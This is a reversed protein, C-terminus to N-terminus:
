SVCFSILLSITPKTKSLPLSIGLHILLSAVCCKSYKAFWCFCFLVSEWLLLPTMCCLESCGLCALDQKWSVSQMAIQNLMMVSVTYLYVGSLLRSSIAHHFVAAAATRDCRWIIFLKAASLWRSYGHCHPSVSFELMYEVVGGKHLWIVTNFHGSSLAQLLHPPNKILTPSETIDRGPAWILPKLAWKEVQVRFGRGEPIDACRTNAEVKQCDNSM